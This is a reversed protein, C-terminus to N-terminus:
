RCSSEFHQYVSHDLYGQRYAEDSRLRPYRDYEDDTIHVLARGRPGGDVGFFHYEEIERKGTVLHEVASGDSAGSAAVPSEGTAADEERGRHDPGNAQSQEISM